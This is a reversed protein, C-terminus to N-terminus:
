RSEGMIYLYIPNPPEAVGWPLNIMEKSNAPIGQRFLYMNNRPHPDHLLYAIGQNSTNRLECVGQNTYWKFQVSLPGRTHTLTASESRRCGLNMGDNGFQNKLGQFSQGDTCALWKDVGM